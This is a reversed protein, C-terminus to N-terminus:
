PIGDTSRDLTVLGQIECAVQLQECNDARKRAIM